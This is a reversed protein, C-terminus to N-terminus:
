PVATGRTPRSVRQKGRPDLCAIELEELADAIGAELRHEEPGLIVGAGWLLQHLRGNTRPCGIKKGILVRKALM